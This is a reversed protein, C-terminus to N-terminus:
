TLLEEESVDDLIDLLTDETMFLARYKRILIQLDEKFNDEIAM